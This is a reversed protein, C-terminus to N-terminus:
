ERETGAGTLRLEAERQIDVKKERNDHVEGPCLSSPSCPTVSLESRAYNWSLSEPPFLSKAMETNVCLIGASVQSQEAESVPGRLCNGHVQPCCMM